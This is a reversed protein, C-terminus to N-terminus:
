PDENDSVEGVYQVYWYSGAAFVEKVSGRKIFILAGSRVRLQDAVVLKEAGSLAGSDAFGYDASGSVDATVAGSYVVKWQRPM